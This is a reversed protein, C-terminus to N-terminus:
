ALANMKATNSYETLPISQPVNASPKKIVASKPKVVVEPLTQTSLPDNFPNNPASSATESITESAAKSRQSSSQGPARTRPVVKPLVKKEDSLRTSLTNSIDATIVSDSLKSTRSSKTGDPALGAKRRELERQLDLKIADSSKVQVDTRFVKVERYYEKAEDTCDAAAAIMKNIRVSHAHLNNYANLLDELAETAMSQHWDHVQIWMENKVKDAKKM